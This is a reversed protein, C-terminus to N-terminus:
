FFSELYISFIHIFLVQSPSVAGTQCASFASINTSAVVIQATQTNPAPNESLSHNSLNHIGAPSARSKKSDNTAEYSNEKRKRSLNSDVAKWSFSSSDASALLAEDETDKNDGDSTAQNGLKKRLKRELQLKFRWNEIMKCKCILLPVKARSSQLNAIKYKVSKQMSRLSRLVKSLYNEKLLKAVIANLQLTEQHARRQFDSNDDHKGDKVEADAGSSSHEDTDSYTEDLSAVAPAVTDTHATKIEKEVSQEAPAKTAEEALQKSRGSKLRRQKNVDQEAKLKIIWEQIKSLKFQLLREVEGSQECKTITSRASMLRSSLVRSVEELSKDHLLKEVLEDLKHEEEKLQIEFESNENQKETEVEPSVQSYFNENDSAATQGKDLSSSILSCHELTATNVVSEKGCSAREVPILEEVPAVLEVAESLTERVANSPGYFDVGPLSYFPPNVFMSFPQLPAGPNDDGTADNPKYSLVIQLEEADM